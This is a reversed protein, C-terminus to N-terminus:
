QQDFLKLYNKLPQLGVAKRRVDVTLSDQIPFPKAHHTKLDLRVQTGYLQKHGENILVRDQLLAFKEGSANNKKVEKCMLLLVKQQFAVDDDCHQVIAWFADSGVEGVLSYGPFGYKRIITKAEIQNLSDAKAMKLNITNEDFASIKGNQLNVEERRWLQDEHFM